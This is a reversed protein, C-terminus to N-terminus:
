FHAWPKDKDSVGSLEVLYSYSYKQSAGLTVLNRPIFVSTHINLLTGPHNKCVSSNSIWSCKTGWIYKGESDQARWFSAVELIALRQKQGAREILVELQYHTKRYSGM